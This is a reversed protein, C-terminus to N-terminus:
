EKNENAFWMNKQLKVKCSPCDIGNGMDDILEMFTYLKEKCTPCSTPINTNDMAIKIKDVNFDFDYVINEPIIADYKWDCVCKNCWMHIRYGLANLKNTNPLSICAYKSGQRKFNELEAKFDADSVNIAEDIDGLPWPSTLVIGKGNHECEPNRCIFDCGTVAM